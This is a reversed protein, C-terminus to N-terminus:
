KEELDTITTPKKAKIEALIKDGGRNLIELAVTQGLRQAGDVSTVEETTDVEAFQSGDISVVIAQFRLHKEDVWTTQVGLPASCGGEITRLLRREATVAYFTPLHNIKKIIEGVKKDDSRNEIGIAGQGVAYLMGGDESDIYQSIRDSLNIRILGAAALILGDYGSDDADLKRLRTEINGRMDKIVIHPYKQALQATRRISSTGIVAGALLDQLRCHSRGAKVVFVDRPNERELVGGIECNHPLETPVDKLAHVLLDLQKEELLKELEHTWINKVPMDRFPTVKDIDGAATDKAKVDFTYKPYFKTAAEVVMETQKLALKSKRTGVNLTFEGKLAQSLEVAEPGTMVAITSMKAAVRIM